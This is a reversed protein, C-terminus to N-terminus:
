AGRCSGLRRPPPGCGPKVSTFSSTPLLTTSLSDIMAVPAGTHDAITIQGAATRRVRMTTAGSAYLSVGSWSSHWPVGPADALGRLAADLAAPHLAFGPDSGSDPLCVEAFTTDGQRWLATLAQFAPGLDIGHEALSAYLDEVPVPTAGPPPWAVLEPAAVTAEGTVQGHAHLTWDSEADGTQAHVTIPRHGAEENRGVKVQIRVEGHEPLTLPDEIALEVIRPCGVQDGTFLVLEAIAAEPLVVAAMVTHDVLWPHTRRSLTGTFLHGDDGALATAATLFPHGPATLGASSLDARAAPAELWYRQRQFAYTPLDVVATSAPFFPRWDVEAGAVYLRGLGTALAAVEDHDKRSLAVLEAPETLCADALATLVADPGVEVWADARAAGLADAFRVPRRVHEVWYQPQAWDGVSIPQGTVTSVVVPGGDAPTLFSLGEVVQAFRELMPEMLPSHFAHSVRLWRTRYGAEAFHAAVREAAEREGSVVVAAPGNVAAVGVRDELGALVPVVEAEPAAIAVMAGGALLEQMLRGRAGVLAVADPLSLVGAVHAAAIEGISHGVLVRPRVGVSELLRYLAVEFAFLAPQAWGTDNLDVSLDEGFMVARLPEGAIACVEELAAAFVPFREALDRGMGVRQSGQGSFLVGVSGVSSVAGPVIEALGRRLEALDAGVAVARHEFSSRTAVLSLGVAAPDQEVSALRGAQARLGAESKASVVWPVVGGSGASREVVVSVNAADSEVPVAPGQEVAVSVDVAPGQELIVHANTGSIGFSSVAARRPRGAEPWDRAETLLEVAGASWDVHPSPEDAHLTKPLVGHRMAMVMKIVGGVGAAAQAHGINSKLSGLWLPEQRGQGYTALLAQAEIPDGLATGTGHAEVADVDRASLGASALAQRIVGEQSLGNPATLGNSAGDQNVASGRVVALVQHGNREADSLREVLLLGVGEGWGTGDAAASFAKCRGDPSLGRQRSFEVFMGPNAMVMAGGALALSCEGSRLAQVALHLAVLSSSCATDVTVAPGEVGLTYAVRGSAVSASTGTLLYGEVGETGEHLRPGYDSAVAGVFVGARSGRLSVPDIGAREIAEWATELLLRQQPDMALAERPSIGF